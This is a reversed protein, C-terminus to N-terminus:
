RPSNYPMPGFLTFVNNEITYCENSDHVGPKTGGCMIYKGDLNGINAYARPIEINPWSNCWNSGDRLDIIETSTLYNDELLVGKNGTAIM